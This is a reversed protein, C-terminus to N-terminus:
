ERKSHLNCIAHEIVEKFNPKEILRYNIRSLFCLEDENLLKANGTFLVGNNNLNHNKILQVGNYNDEIEYDVVHFDHTHKSISFDSTTSYPLICVELNDFQQALAVSLKRAIMKLQNTDDDIIAITFTTM